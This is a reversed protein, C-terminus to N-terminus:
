VHKAELFDRASTLAEAELSVSRILRRLASCVALDDDVIYVVPHVQEM